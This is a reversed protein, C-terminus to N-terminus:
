NNKITMICTQFLRAMGVPLVGFANDFVYSIQM